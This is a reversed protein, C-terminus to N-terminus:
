PAPANCSGFGNNETGTTAASILLRPGGNTLSPSTGYARFGMTDAANLPFRPFPFFKVHGDAFLLNGGGNHIQSLEDTSGTGTYLFGDNAKEEDLLLVTLSDAEMAAQAIGGMNCNMSYTLGKSQGDKNSPCIYIQASKTYPYIAGAEVGARMGPRVTGPNTAVFALSNPDGTANDANVFNSLPAAIWHGRNAWRQYQGAGPYREDYDQTYQLFGLGLQKMNSMCSAKRANERARAFVPFLIAALIAIIAIVVLLEILTFAKRQLSM